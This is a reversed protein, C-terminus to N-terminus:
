DLDDFIQKIRKSARTLARAVLGALIVGGLVIAVSVVAARLGYNQALVGILLVAALVVATLRRTM